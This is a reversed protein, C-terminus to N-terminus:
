YDLRLLLVFGPLLEAGTQHPQTLLDGLMLLALARIIRHDRRMQEPPLLLSTGNNRKGAAPEREVASEVSEPVLLISTPTKPHSSM